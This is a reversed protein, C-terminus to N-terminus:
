IKIRHITIQKLQKVYRRGTARDQPSIVALGSNEGESVGETIGTVVLISDGVATNFLENWSFVVAYGDEAECVIYYRSLVKPSEEGFSINKLIDKLSVGTIGKLTSRYVGAHNYIRLSDVSHSDFKTLDKLTLKKQEAPSVLQLGKDSQAQSYLGILILLISFFIRM